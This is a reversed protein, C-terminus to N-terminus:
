ILKDLEDPEDLEDLKDPKDLVFRSFMEATKGSLIAKAQSPM